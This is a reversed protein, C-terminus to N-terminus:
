KQYRAEQQLGELFDSIQPRQILILCFAVLSFPIVTVFDGFMVVLILGFVAVAERLAYVVILVTQYYAVAQGLHRDKELLGSWRNLHEPALNPPTSPNLKAGMRQPSLAWQRYYFSAVIALVSVVIVGILILNQTEPNTTSPEPRNGALIWALVLYVLPTLLFALWIVNLVRALPAVFQKLEPSLM